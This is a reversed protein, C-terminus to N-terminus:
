RENEKETINVLFHRQPSHCVFTLYIPIKPSTKSPVSLLLLLLLSENSRVKETGRARTSASVAAGSVGPWCCFSNFLPSVGGKRNGPTSGSPFVHFKSASSLRYDVPRNHESQGAPKTQRRASPNGKNKEFNKPRPAEEPFGGRLCPCLGEGGGRM